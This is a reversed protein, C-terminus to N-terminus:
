HLHSSIFTQVFMANQMALKLHYLVASCAKGLGRNLHSFTADWLAGHGSKGSASLRILDIFSQSASAKYFFGTFIQILFDELNSGSFICNPYSEFSFRCFEM